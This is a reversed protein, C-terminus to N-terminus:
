KIQINRNEVLSAGAVKKGDQIAKKIETKDPKTTVTKVLFKKPLRGEDIIQVAVSKRFSVRVKATEVKDSGVADMCRSLYAKMNEAKKEARKRRDALSEEETKLAAAFASLNKVYCAVSEAKDEFQGGLSELAGFDLIEGTEVDIELSDLAKLYESSIEHLSIM